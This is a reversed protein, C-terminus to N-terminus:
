RNGSTKKSEGRLRKQTIPKGRRTAPCAAFRSGGSSPQVFDDPHERLEVKGHNDHAEGTDQDPDLLGM